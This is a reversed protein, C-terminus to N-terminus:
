ETGLSFPLPLPLYRHVTTDTCELTQPASGHRKSLTDDCLVYVYDCLALRMSTYSSWLCVTCRLVKGLMAINGNQLAGVSVLCNYNVRLDCDSQNTDVNSFFVNAM